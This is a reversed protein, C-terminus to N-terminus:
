PSASTARAVVGVRRDAVPDSGSASRPRCRAAGSRRGPPAAARGRRRTRGGAGFAGRRVLVAGISAASIMFRLFKAAVPENRASSRGRASSRSPKELWSTNLVNWLRRRCSQSCPPSRSRASRRRARACGRCSRTRRPRGAAARRGAVHREDVEVPAAAIASSAIAIPAAASSTADPQGGPWEGLWMPRSGTHARACSAPMGITNWTPPVPSRM